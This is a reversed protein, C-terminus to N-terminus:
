PLTHRSYFAWMADTASFDKSLKGIFREPLYQTGGPWTHGGNNIRYLAVEGASDASGHTLLDPTTGDNTATDPLSSIRPSAAVGNRCAWFAATDPASLVAGGVRGFVSGGAYPMLPDATGSFMVIPVARAPSCSAALAASMKAAVTAIAAFRSSLEYALHISMMGGNSIGAAYVRRAGVSYEAALADLLAAIFAVDHTHATVTERGDDLHGGKSEPYAAIFGHRDALGSIGDTSRAVGAATGGGGHLLLVVPTPAGDLVTSQVDLLYNRTVGAVVVARSFDGSIGPHSAVPLGDNGFAGCGLM